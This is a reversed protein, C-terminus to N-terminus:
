PELTLMKAAQRSGNRYEILAKRMRAAAAPNASYFDVQDFPVVVKSGPLTLTAVRIWNAPKQRVWDDYIMVQEVKKAEMLPGLWDGAAPDAQRRLAEYSALGLVDLLYHRGYLAVFGIDNVAEPEDLHDRVILGMQRQQDHINRSASATNLTVKINEISSVGLCVVLTVNLFVVQYLRTRAYVAFLLILIWAHAYIHYRGFWGYSGFTLHLLTPLGVLLVAEKYKGERLYLVAAAAACVVFFLQMQVNHEIATSRSIDSMFSVGKKAFVSSPLFNHGHIYLFLSFGGVAAAIMGGALMARLRQGPMLVLYALVPLSIALGEYRLLPLVVVSTWFALTFRGHVLSLAIVITLTVQWSNEMGTLVLGYLNLVLAVATTAFFAWIPPMLDSLWRLLWWVAVLISVLNLALPLFESWRTFTFPALVFPWLISSSPASFESANIGYHGHLIHRALALHIYADDLSYVIGSTTVYVQATLVLAPAAAFLALWKFQRSSHRWPLL